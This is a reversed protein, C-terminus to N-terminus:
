VAKITELTDPSWVVIIQRPNNDDIPYPGKVGDPLQVYFVGGKTADTDHDTKHMKHSHHVKWKVSGGGGFEGYGM